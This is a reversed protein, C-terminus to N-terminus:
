LSCLLFLNILSFTLEKRLILNLQSIIAGYNQKLNHMLNHVIQCLQNHILKKQMSAVHDSLWSTFVCSLSFRNSDFSNDTLGDLGTILHLQSM